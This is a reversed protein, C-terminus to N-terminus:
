YKGLITALQKAVDQRSASSVIRESELLDSFHKQQQILKDEFDKKM